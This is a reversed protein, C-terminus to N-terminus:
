SQSAEDLNLCCSALEEGGTGPPALILVCSAGSIAHTLLETGLPDLATRPEDLVLLQPSGLWARALNLRQQWGRSLSGITRKAYEDLGFRALATDAELKAIKSPSGGLVALQFLYNHCRSRLPFRPDQSAWGLQKPKTVSGAHPKLFGCITESLTTKGSGNSGLVLGAEGGGLSLELDQALVRGGRKLCLQNLSLISDQPM